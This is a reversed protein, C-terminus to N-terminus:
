EEEGNDGGDGPVVKILAELKSLAVEADDMLNGLASMPKNSDVKWREFQKLAEACEALADILPRLRANEREEGAMIGEQFERTQVNNYKFEADEAAKLVRSKLDQSM